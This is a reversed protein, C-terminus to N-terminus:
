VLSIKDLGSTKFFITLILKPRLRVDAIKTTINIWNSDVLLTAVDQLSSTVIDIEADTLKDVEATDVGVATVGVIVELVNIASEEKADDKLNAM